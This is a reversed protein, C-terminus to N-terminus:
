KSYKNLNLFLWVTIYLIAVVIVGVITDITDELKNRM